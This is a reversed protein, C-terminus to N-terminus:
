RPGGRSDSPTVWLAFRVNDARLEPRLSDAAHPLVTRSDAGSAVVPRAPGNGSPSVAIAFTAVGVSAIVTGAAIGWCCRLFRRRVIFFRARDLLAKVLDQIDRQDDTLGEAPLNLWTDPLHKWGEEGGAARLFAPNEKLENRVWAHDSDWLESITLYGAYGLMWAAEGAAFLLGFVTVGFGVLAM